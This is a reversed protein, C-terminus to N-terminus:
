SGAAVGKRGQVPEIRGLQGKDLHVIIEAYQAASPDHTVMLVTKGLERNLRLLLQLV